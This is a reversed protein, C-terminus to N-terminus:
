LISLVFCPHKKKKQFGEWAMVKQRNKPLRQIPRNGKKHWQHVKDRFLDFATEGTFITQNWNDNM